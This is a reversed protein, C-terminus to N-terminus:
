LKLRLNFNRRNTSKFTTDSANKPEMVKPESKQHKDVPWFHRLIQIRYLRQPILLMNEFNIHYLTNIFM